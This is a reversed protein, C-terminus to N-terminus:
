GIYQAEPKSDAFQSRLKSLRTNERDEKARAQAKEYNETERDLPSLDVSLNLIKKLQELISKAERFGLHLQHAYTEALLAVGSMGRLQAIGLLLGSAGVIADIKSNIKFNIGGLKEYKKLTVKNTVAGFVAPKKIEHPMGIGGLTIIERCGLEQVFDVIKESFEYSARQSAPQDDGALFLIDNNKGKVYYICVAPLEVFGSDNFYVSHMFDHSYIKYLLKPKLKDILFDVAIKGVQGMGPLGEIMIPANLRPLTKFKKQVIWKSM